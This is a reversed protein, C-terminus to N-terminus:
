STLLNRDFPSAFIRPKARYWRSVINLAERQSLSSRSSNTVTTNSTTQSNNSSVVPPLSNNFSSVQSNNSAQLNGLSVNLDFTKSGQPVAVQITYKGDKPLTSSTIIQNEPSYVWICLNENTQYNLKDGSNATFTYGLLKTASAQASITLTKQNLTIEKVNNKDLALTPQQPCQSSTTTTASTPTNGSNSFVSNSLTKLGDCGYITFLILYFILKKIM